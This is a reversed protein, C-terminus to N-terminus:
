TRLVAPLHTNDNFTRVSWSGDDAHHLETVSCNALSPVERPGIGQVAGLLARISSGHAVVLVRGNPYARALDTLAALMRERVAHWSEVDVIADFSEFAARVQEVTWGEVSGFSREALREDVHHPRGHERNITSATVAARQLHSSAVADFADEALAGRTHEAQALGTDNLPIDTAGQIRHALNWDTQGHRM